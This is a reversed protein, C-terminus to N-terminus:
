GRAARYRAKTAADPPYTGELPAGAAIEAQAWDEYDLKEAAEQAVDQAIARPICVVGNADGVMVDGPFIAVPGIGVPLECDTMMVVAGSPM